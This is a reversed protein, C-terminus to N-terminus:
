YVYMSSCSTVNHTQIDVVTCLELEVHCQKTQINNERAIYVVFLYMRKAQTHM